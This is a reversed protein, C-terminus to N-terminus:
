HSSVERPHIFPAEAMIFIDEWFIELESFFDHGRIFQFPRGILKSINVSSDYVSTIGIQSEPM